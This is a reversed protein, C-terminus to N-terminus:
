GPETGAGAASVKMVEGLVVTAFAGRPLEFACRIYPGHEDAGGEADPYRLPVRLPRRSGTVPDGFRGAFGAMHETSVGTEALASGEAEGVEGVARTMELGWMPGSPSIELGALREATGPDSLVAADVAFVAGSDHKWALDGERLAALLGAHVRAGLVRNFVASQFATVYFQRQMAPITAVARGPGRGHALAALVRRETDANRPFAEKAEAYRGEAYLRRAEAQMEPRAASPGLILDLVGRDDGLLLARGVLHNNALLGFRQEGAFNPAGVRELRQLVRHAHVVGGAEVGRIRVVFRNGALHGQRLKNTHRDSWLVTVREHAFAPPDEARKGPLHVSVLQRTVALRDKLGAYGVAHKPVGYHRALLSVLQMTPMDTKQVFLYLHEGSGCPEYAPLEEVFFDEPRQRLVGGVGPLDATVHVPGTPGPVDSPSPQDM